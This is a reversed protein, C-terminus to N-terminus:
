LISKSILGSHLHLACVRGAGLYSIGFGNRKLARSLPSHALPLMPPLAFGHLLSYAARRFTIAMSRLITLPRRIKHLDANPLIKIQETDAGDFAFSEVINIKNTRTLDPGIAAARQVSSAITLYFLYM